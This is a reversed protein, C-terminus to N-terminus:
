NGVNAEFEITQSVPVSMSFINFEEAKKLPTDITIITTDGPMISNLVPEGAWPGICLFTEKYIPAVGTNTMLILTKESDTKVDLMKFRYGSAWAAELFREATGYQGSPADNAIMFSIHYKAAQEEWTRGYLGDPNLFNKQDRSSYYSIEGGCPAIQWRVGQGIANWCQENYGTEEDGDVIEHSRHMFSDDFLGFHLAMLESSHVIPTYYDDAADISILWPIHVNEDVFQLFEAQYNKSPFNVGPDLETGYIHYESWHGFGVELFAVRDDNGYRDAFDYYFQKTFWQLEDNTWDAYYTPGDDNNNFTEHYDPLAKIYDPVATTGPEGDVERSGPYEYRFRVVAQHNRSAIDNLIEEFYTWDYEIDSGNKGKVVRCPLCYSYELSISNRYDADLERAQDRWLVLGTMPQAHTLQAHVPVRTMGDVKLTDGYTSGTSPPEPENKPECCACALSVTIVVVAGIIWFFHRKKM